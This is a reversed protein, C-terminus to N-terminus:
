RMMARALALLQERTIHGSVQMVGDTRQVVIKLFADDFFLVARQGLGEIPVPLDSGFDQEIRVTYDFFQTVAPTAANPCCRTAAAGARIAADSAFSATVTADSDPWEWRCQSSGSASETFTGRSPRGMVTEVEADTLQARCSTDSTPQGPQSTAAAAVIPASGCLYVVVLLM